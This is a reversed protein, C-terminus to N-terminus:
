RAFIINEANAHIAKLGHKSCYDAYANYLHDRSNWEICLCQCGVISLNIAQLVENDMGEVDISIFDFQGVGSLQVFDPFFLLEIEQEEFQVGANRWRETEQPLVSSVLAIDNGNRVHAGSEQLIAKESYSGIGQNYLRVAPNGSHLELLKKFAKPSPELLHARWGREILDYSNSFTKGDNAGIDLLTGIQGNFYNLVIEAERNQSHYM